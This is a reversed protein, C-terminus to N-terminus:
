KTLQYCSFASSLVKDQIQFGTGKGAARLAKKGWDAKVFLDLVAGRFALAHFQFYFLHKWM